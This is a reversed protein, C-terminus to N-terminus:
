QRFLYVMIAESLSNIQGRRKWAMLINMKAVFEKSTIIKIRGDDPISYTTQNDTLVIVLRAKSEANAILNTAKYLNYTPTATETSKDIKYLSEFASKQDDNLRPSVRDYLQSPILISVNAEVILRNAVEFAEVRKKSSPSVINKDTVARM